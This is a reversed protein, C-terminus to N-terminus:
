LFYNSQLLKILIQTKHMGKRANEKTKARFYLRDEFVIKEVLRIKLQCVLIWTKVDAMYISHQLTQIEKPSAKQSLIAAAHEPHSRFHWGQM